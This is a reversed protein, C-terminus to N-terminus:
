SISSQPSKQQLTLLFRSRRLRSLRKKRALGNAYLRLQRFIQSGNTGETIFNWTYPKSDQGAPVVQLHCSSKKLVAIADAPSVTKNVWKGHVNVITQCDDDEILRANKSLARNIAADVTTQREAQRYSEFTDAATTLTTSFSMVSKEYVTTSCSTLFFLLVLVFSVLRDAKGPMYTPRKM